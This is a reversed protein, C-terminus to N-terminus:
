EHNEGSHGYMEVLHQARHDPTGNCLARLSDRYYGASTSDGLLFLSFGGSSNRGIATASSQASPALALVLIFLTMVHSMVM